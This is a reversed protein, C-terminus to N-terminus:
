NSFRKWVNCTASEEARHDQHCCLLTEALNTVNLTIAENSLLLKFIDFGNPLKWLLSGETKRVKYTHNIFQNFTM